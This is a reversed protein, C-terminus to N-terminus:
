RGEDIEGEYRVVDSSVGVVMLDYKTTFPGSCDWIMRTGTQPAELELGYADFATIGLLLSGVVLGAVREFVPSHRRRGASFVPSTRNM